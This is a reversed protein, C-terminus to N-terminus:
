SCPHAPRAGRDRRPATAEAELADADPRAARQGVASPSRDRRPARPRRCSGPARRRRRADLGVGSSIPASAACASWARGDDDGGVEEVVRVGRPRRGPARGAREGDLHLGRRQEGDRRARPTRAASGARPRAVLTAPARRRPDAVVRQAAASRSAARRQGASAASLQRTAPARRSRRAAQPKAGAATSKAPARQERPQQAPPPGRVRRALSRRTSARRARAEIAALREEDGGARSTGRRSGSTSGTSATRSGRWGSARGLARAADPARPRRGVPLNLAGM